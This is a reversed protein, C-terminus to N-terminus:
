DCDQHIKFGFLDGPCRVEWLTMLISWISQDWRHNAKSSGEPIIVEPRMSYTKWQELFEYVMPNSCVMSLFGSARMAYGKTKEANMYKFTDPHTWRENTDTAFPSYIGYDNTIEMVLHPNTLLNGADCWVLIGDQVEQYMKFVIWSKWAYAGACPATLQAHPPLEEFPCRRYKVTPFDNQLQIAEQETLGLDWFYIQTPVSLIEAWLSGPLPCSRLFQRVSKYHNSSAGTIITLM